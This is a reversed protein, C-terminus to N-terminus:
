AGIRFLIITAGPTTSQDSYGKFVLTDGVALSVAESIMAQATGTFAPPNARGIIQNSGGNKAYYVEIANGASWTASGSRVLGGVAYKGAVNCTWTTGGSLSGATDWDITLSLTPTTNNITTTSTYRASVHTGPVPLFIGTSM